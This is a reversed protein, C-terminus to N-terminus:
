RNKIASYILLGLVGGLINLFIDYWTFFRNPLFYQYIEDAIGIVGTGAGSLFYSNKITASKINKENRAGINRVNKKDLARVILLSLIAYEPLHTFEYPNPIFQYIIFSVLFIGGAYILYLAPRKKIYIRYIPGIALMFLAIAIEIWLVFRSVGSSSWRSSATRILKPLYPTVVFIGVTYFYVVAWKRSVRM